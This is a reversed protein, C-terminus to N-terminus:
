FPLGEQSPLRFVGQFAVPATMWAPYPTYASGHLAMDSAPIVQPACMSQPQPSLLCLESEMLGAAGM